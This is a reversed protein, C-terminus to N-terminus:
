GTGTSEASYDHNHSDRGQYDAVGDCEQLEETARFDVRTPAGTFYASCQLYRHVSSSMMIM